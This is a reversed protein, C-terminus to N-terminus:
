YSYINTVKGECLPCRMKNQKREKLKIICTRCFSNHGCPRLVIDSTSDFCVVCTGRLHEESALVLEIPLPEIRIEEKPKHKFRWCCYGVISLILCTMVAASVIMLTRFPGENPDSSIRITRHTVLKERICNLDLKLVALDVSGIRQYPKNGVITFNFDLEKGETRYIGMVHPAYYSLGLQQLLLAPNKKNVMKKISTNCVQMISMEVVIMTTQVWGEAKGSMVYYRNM